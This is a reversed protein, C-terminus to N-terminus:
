QCYRTVPGHLYIQLFFFGLQRSTVRAVPMTEGPTGSRGAGWFSFGVCLICCEGKALWRWRSAGLCQPSHLLLTPASAGRPGLAQTQQTVLTCNPVFAVHDKLTRSQLTHPVLISSQKHIASAGHLLEHPLLIDNTYRVKALIAKVQQIRRDSRFRDYM